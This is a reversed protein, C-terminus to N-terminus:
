EDGGGKNKNIPLPKPTGFLSNEQIPTATPYERRDVIQGSPLVGGYGSQSIKIGELLSDVRKQAQECTETDPHILGCKCKFLIM